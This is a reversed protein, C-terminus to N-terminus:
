STTASCFFFILPIFRRTPHSYIIRVNNPGGKIYGITYAIRSLVWMELASAAIVPYRIAVIATMVYYMAINEVTNQHARQACNFQMAAPSATMEQTNAYLRPYEIGALGRLKFVTTAQATLLFVTSALAAVVYSTGAPITITTSM